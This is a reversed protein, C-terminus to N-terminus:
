KSRQRSAKKPHSQTSLMTALLDVSLGQEQLRIRYRELIEKQKKQDAKEKEEIEEDEAILINLNEVIKQKDSKSLGTEKTFKRLLHIKTMITVFAHAM